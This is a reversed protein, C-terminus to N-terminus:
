QVQVLLTLASRYTREARGRGDWRRVDVPGQKGSSEDPLGPFAKATCLLIRLLDRPLPM